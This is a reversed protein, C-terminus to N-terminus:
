STRSRFIPTSVNSSRRRAQAFRSSARRAAPTLVLTDGDATALGLSLVKDIAAAAIAADVKLASQMRAAVASREASGGNTGAFNLIVWTHFTTDQEALLADLLARTANAALAIDQGTLPPKTV